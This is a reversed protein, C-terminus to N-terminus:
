SYVKWDLPNLNSGQHPVQSGVRWLTALGMCWLQLTQESCASLRCAGSVIQGLQLSPWTGCCPAVHQLQSGVCGLSYILMSLVVSECLADRVVDQPSVSFAPKVGPNPLDGPSPFPLGSWYGQKCFGMSLHAQCVVTWPTAFFRVRSLLQDHAHSYMM